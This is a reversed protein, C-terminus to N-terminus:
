GNTENKETKLYSIRQSMANLVQNVQKLLLDHKFANAEDIQEQQFLEENANEAEITAQAASIGKDQIIAQKKKSVSIKRTFYSVNYSTKAGATYEALRYSHIALKDRLNLLGDIQIKAGDKFYECLIKEIEKLTDIM